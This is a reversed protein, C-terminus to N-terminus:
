SLAVVEPNQIIHLGSASLERLLHSEEIAKGSLIKNIKNKRIVEYLKKKNSIVEVGQLTLILDSNDNKVSADELFVGLPRYHIDKYTKLKKISVDLEDKSSGYLIVPISDKRHAFLYENFIRIAIRAGGLLGITFIADLILVARSFNEFRYAFSIYFIVVFFSVM